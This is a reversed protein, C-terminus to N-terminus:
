RGSADRSIRSSSSPSRRRRSPGQQDPMLAACIILTLGCGLLAFWSRDSHHAASIAVGAWAVGISMGLQRSTSVVGGAAGRNTGMGAVATATIPANVTGFGAGFLAAAVVVSTTGTGAGILTAAAAVVFVGGVALTPRPGFTATARGSLASFGFTTVAIPVLRLGTDVPGLGVETQLYVSVTFVLVGQGGSAVLGGLNAIRFGSDAFYRPAIFPHAARRERVVAAVAALITAVVATWAVSSDTGPRSAEIITLVLLFMAAAVFVQGPLDRGPAQVGFSEPVWRSAAALAILCVPVNIWFIARWGAGATLVGGAIPGLAMAIGLVAGWTGMARARARPDVFVSGIIALAVPNLMSGGAGQVVRGLILVAPGPAVSCIISGAAFVVMGLQFCRRRGIRDALTGSSILLAALTLTYADVVWSLGPGTTHLQRGIQPLAVNVISSDLSVVFMSLCAISLVARPRVVRQVPADDAQRTGVRM